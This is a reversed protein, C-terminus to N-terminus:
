GALSGNGTSCVSISFCGAGSASASLTMAVGEGVDGTGAEVALGPGTIVPSDAFASSGCNGPEPAVRLEAGIAGALEDKGM